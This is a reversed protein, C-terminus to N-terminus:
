RSVTGGPPLDVPGLVRTSEHCERGAYRTEASAAEHAGGQCAPSTFWTVQM